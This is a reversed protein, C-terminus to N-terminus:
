KLFEDDIKGFPKPSAIIPLDIKPNPAFSPIVEENISVPFPGQVEYTFEPNFSTLQQQKQIAENYDYIGIITTNKLSKKILVYKNLFRYEM